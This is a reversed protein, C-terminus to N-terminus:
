NNGSDVYLEQFATWALGLNKHIGKLVAQAEQKIHSTAQQAKEEKDQGHTVRKAQSSPFLLLVKPVPKRGGRVM